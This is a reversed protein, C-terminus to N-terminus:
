WSIEGVAAHVRVAGVLMQVHEGASDYAWTHWVMYNLIYCVIIYCLICVYIYIYIYICVRLSM